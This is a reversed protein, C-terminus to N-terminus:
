LEALMQHVGLSLLLHLPAQGPAAQGINTSVQPLLPPQSDPQSGLYLGLALLHSLSSTLGAAIADGMGLPLMSYVTFIVFLFFSM